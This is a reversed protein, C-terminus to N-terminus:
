APGHVSTLFKDLDLNSLLTQPDTTYQRKEIQKSEKTESLKRKSIKGTYNDRDIERTAKDTKSKKKNDQQAENKKENMASTKITGKKVKSTLPKDLPSSTALPKAHINKMTLNSLFAKDYSGYINENKMPSKKNTVKRRPLLNFIEEYDTATMVKVCEDYCQDNFVINIQFELEHSSYRRRRKKLPANDDYLFHYEVSNPVSTVNLNTKCHNEQGYELMGVNDNKCTPVLQLSQLVRSLNKPNELEVNKTSLKATDNSVQPKDVNDYIEQNASFKITNSAKHDNEEDSFLDRRVQDVKLKMINNTKGNYSPYDKAKRVNKENYNHENRIADSKRQQSTIENEPKTEDDEPKRTDVNHEKLDHTSNKETGIIAHKAEPHETIELKSVIEKETTILNSIKNESDFADSSKEQTVSIEVNNAIDEVLAVIVKDSENKQTTKISSINNCVIEENYNTKNQYCDSSSAVSREPKDHVEVVSNASSNKIVTDTNKNNNNNTSKEVNKNEKRKRKKNIQDGNVQGFKNSKRRPNTNSKAKLIVRGRQSKGDTSNTKPNVRFKAIMRQRKAELQVALKKDTIPSTQEKQLISSSKTPKVPTLTVSTNLKTRQISIIKPKQKAKKAISNALLQSEDSKSLKRDESSIFAAIKSSLNTLSEVGSKTSNPTESIDAENLLAEDKVPTETTDAMLEEDTKVISFVKLPSSECKKLATITEETHNTYPIDATKIQLEVFNNETIVTGVVHADKRTSDNSTDTYIQNSIRNCKKSSLSKEPSDGIKLKNSSVSSSSSSSSTSSSSESSSSTSSSNSSSSTNSDNSEENNYLSKDKDTIACTREMIGDKNHDVKSKAYCTSSERSNTSIKLEKVADEKPLNEKIVEFQTIELKASVCAQYANTSDTVNHPISQKSNQSPLVSTSQLDTKSKSLKESNENQESTPKYYPSCTNFADKKTNDTTTGDSLKPTLAICPTTPYEPTNIFCRLKSSDESGKIFPTVHSSPSLLRPTPPVDSSTELKKPTEELNILEPILQLVQHTADMSTKTFESYQVVDTSIDTSFESNSKNLNTKLTRLQAYKKVIKKEVVPKDNTATTAGCKSKKLSLIDANKQESVNQSENVDSTRLSDKQTNVSSNVADSSSKENEVTASESARGDKTASIERNRAKSTRLNCRDKRSPATKDKTHEAKTAVSSKSKQCEKKATSQLAKRLDADWTDKTVKSPKSEMSDEVPSVVVTSQPSVDGIIVGVGNYKEWGGILKPMPSRTAVPPSTPRCIKPSGRKIKHTSVTVNGFPPSKFLSTKCVSKAYKSLRPSLRASENESLSRNLAAVAKTPTNFNLARVHNSSKRRPTSLSLRHNKSRSKLLSRPTRKHIADTNKSTSPRQDDLVNVKLPAPIKSVQVVPTLDIDSLSQNQNAKSCTFKVYPSLGTDSLNVNDDINITPMSTGDLLTRASNESNYLTISENTGFKNAASVVPNAISKGIALSNVPSQITTNKQKNNIKNSKKKQHQQLMAPNQPVNVTKLYVKSIPEKATITSDKPVIPVFRSNTTSTISRTPPYPTSTTMLMNDIEEKSCVILTPMTIIDEKPTCNNTNGNSERKLKAPRPQKMVSKKVKLEADNSQVVTTDNNDARQNDISISKVTEKDENSPLELIPSKKEDDVDVSRSIEKTTDVIIKKDNTPKNIINANIISLVAAANQDDLASYEKEQDREDEVRVNQQRSSSRLRHKLPVDLAGTETSSKLDLIAPSEPSNINSIIESLQKERPSGNLCKTKSKVAEVDEDPSTNDTETYPGIVEDLFKEFVPDSETAQVISKIANNLEIMISTNGEGNVSDNLTEDRLSTDAPLIAKNINDAIREQLETRNLLEKTLLSLNEIPEDNSESESEPTDYPTTQVEVCSYSLLEETSTATSCKEFSCSKKEGDEKCGNDTVADTELNQVDQDDGQHEQHISNCKKGKIATSYESRDNTDTHGPLSELLTAEVSDFGIVQTSPSAPLQSVDSGTKTRKCRERDSNSHRRKRGSSSLIPSGNSIQSSAQSPVNINVVFRQGRTEEILFKLQELLDGCHKVQECDAIKSFREQITANIVFFNEVVDILSMGGVKTSFRRGNSIVTRCEQLHPSTELFTKAAEICKQDELYGLVLRAIESPLLTEM